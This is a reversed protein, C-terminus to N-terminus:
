EPLSDVAKALDDVKITGRVCILAGSDPASIILDTIENGNDSPIAFIQVREGNEKTEMLLYDKVLIKSLSSSFRSKIEPDCDDFSAISIQKIDNMLDFVKRTDEDMDQRMATKIMAIGLRGINVVEFDDRGSYQKMLLSVRKGHDIAAADVPAFGAISLLLLTTFVIKRM